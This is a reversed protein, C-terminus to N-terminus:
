SGSRQWRRHRFWAPRRQSCTAIPPRPQTGPQGHGTRTDLDVKYDKTFAEPNVPLTFMLDELEDSFDKDSYAHIVMKTLANDSTSISDSM